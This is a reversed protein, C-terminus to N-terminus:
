SYRKSFSLFINYISVYTYMIHVHLRVIMIPKEPDIDYADLNVKDPAASCAVCDTGFVAGSNSSGGWTVGVGRQPPPANRTDWTTPPAM